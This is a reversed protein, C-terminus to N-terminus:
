ASRARLHAARCLRRVARGLRASSTAPSRPRMTRIPRRRARTRLRAEAGLAEAIQDYPVYKKPDVAILDKVQEEFGATHTMINRLTIPKGDRPPIKFDLYKNVDADLDLKGQEVQQM